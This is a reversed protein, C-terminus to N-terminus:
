KKGNTTRKSFAGCRTAVSGNDLRNMMAPLLTGSRRRSPLYRATIIRIGGNPRAPCLAIASLRTNLRTSCWNISRPRRLDPFVVLRTKADAGNIPNSDKTGTLLMRPIKVSGFAQKTNGNAPGSPSMIVAAQIRSDTFGQGLPAVQGSVAQTTVAGFSHGSMGIRKLDLRGAFAHATDKSWDELQDLVASVDQVRLLFEKLGAAQKLAAMRQAIPLDKWVGDDSGPHQLFVAVYGRAAWHKGLFASGERNGGLGHSFLVVPAASKDSPLYVRIPLERSRKTDKITLDTQETEVKGTLLPDYDARLGSASALILLLFTFARSM